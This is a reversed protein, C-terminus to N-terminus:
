RQGEKAKQLKDFVAKAIIPNNYNRYPEISDLSKWGFHESIMADSINNEPHAAQHELFQMVKTSRGSHTRIKKSDLGARAACKKLIEWYNRYALPTGQSRGAKLNIFITQSLLGSQTEAQSRETLLYRDLVDRTSQPLFVTRHKFDGSSADPKGKSRSPSIRGAQFDYDELQMSLVEDIRFGELTVLFIALDRLTLFCSCIIVVEDDTYWKIYERKATLRLMHRDIIYKYEYSSIQGYLFSKQARKANDMTQFEVHHVGTQELWKYFETIVTVYKSLTSYSLPARLRIVGGDEYSRGMLRMLFAMVDDTVADEFSIGQGHLFNLYVCLKHAYEKGTSIKRISKLDLWENIQYFPICHRTILWLEREGGSPAPMLARMVKFVRQEKEM